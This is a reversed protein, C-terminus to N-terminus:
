RLAPIRVKLSEFAGFFLGSFLFQSLLSNKLFPLGATYCSLLGQFNKPYAIESAFWVAFNSLMFFGLAATLNSGVFRTINMSKQANVSGLLSILAFIGMHVSDFGFSFSPFFETYLLNNLLLNSFWLALLTWSIAQLRNSFYTGAFLAMSAMPSFNAWAPGALIFFRSAIALALFGILIGTRKTMIYQQRM